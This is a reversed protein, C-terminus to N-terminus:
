GFMSHKSLHCAFWLDREENDMEMFGLASRKHEMLHHLCFMLQAKTYNSCDMMAKVIGPTGESNISSTVVGAFGWVADTLGRMSGGGEEITQRERKGLPKASKDPYDSATKTAAPADVDVDITTADSPDGLPENSGMAFRGTAVASGFIAQMQSYNALPQNLYEDDKPHDQM